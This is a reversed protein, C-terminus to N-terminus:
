RQEFIAAYCFYQTTYVYRRWNIDLLKCAKVEDHSTHAAYTSTVTRLERGYDAASSFFLCKLVVLCTGRFIAHSAREGVVYFSECSLDRLRTGCPCNARLM